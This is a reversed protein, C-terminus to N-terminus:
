PTSTKIARVGLSGQFGQVAPNTKLVTIEAQDIQEPFQEFLRILIREALEELLPTTKNFESKLLQFVMVYDVTDALGIPHVHQKLTVAMSVKFHTGCRNELRTVGHYGYLQIDHLLIQM